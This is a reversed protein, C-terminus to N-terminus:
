AVATQNRGQAKARFLAKDADNLLMHVNQDVASM